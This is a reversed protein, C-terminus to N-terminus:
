TPQPAATHIGIATRAYRAWRGPEAAMPARERGADPRPAWTLAELALVDLTDRALPLVEAM